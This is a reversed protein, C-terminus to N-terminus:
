KERKKYRRYYNILVYWSIIFGLLILVLGLIPNIVMAIFIGIIIFLLGAPSVPSDVKRRSSVEQNSIENLIIDDHKIVALNNNQFNAKGKIFVSKQQSITVKEFEFIPEKFSDLEIYTENSEKSIISKSLLVIDDTIAEHNIRNKVKTHNWEIHYGPLHVRKQISCSNFVLLLIIFFINLKIVKM